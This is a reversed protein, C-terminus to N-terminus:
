ESRQSSGIVEVHAGKHPEHYVSKTVRKNSAWCSSGLFDGARGSIPCTLSQLMDELMRKPMRVMRNLPKIRLAGNKGGETELVLVMDLELFRSIDVLKELADLLHTYSSSHKITHILVCNAMATRSINSLQRSGRSRAMISVMDTLYETRM